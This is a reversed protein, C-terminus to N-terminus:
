KSAPLFSWALSDSDGYFTRIQALQEKLKATIQQSGERDYLNNVTFYFCAKVKEEDTM